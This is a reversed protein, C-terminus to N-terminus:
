SANPEAAPLRVLDQFAALGSLPWVPNGALEAGLCTWLSIGIPYPATVKHALARPIRPWISSVGVAEVKASRHRIPTADM